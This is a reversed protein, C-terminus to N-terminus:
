RLWWGTLTQEGPEASTDLQEKRFPATQRVLPTDPTVKLLFPIGGIAVDYANYLDTYSTASSKVRFSLRFPLRERIDVM